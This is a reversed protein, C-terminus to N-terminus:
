RRGERDGGPGQHRRLQAVSLTALAASLRETLETLRAHAHVAEEEVNGEAGLRELLAAAAAAASSFSSVMGGLKHAAERLRRADRDRLAAAAEALRAPVTAQFHRCMTRLLEEDGDCAALLAQPDLPGAGRAHDAGGATVRDLLAFLEAPRVPKALYGDM